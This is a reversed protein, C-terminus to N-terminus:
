RVFDELPLLQTGEPLELRMQAATFAPVAERSKVLVIARDGRVTVLNVRQVSNHEDLTLEMRWTDNFWRLPRGDSALVLTGGMGGECQFALDDGDRTVATYTSGFVTTLRGHLLADLGFLDLPLPVGIKLLPSNAGEHFYAKQEMPTYVLFHHDKQAIKAITAGIGAQVDLRLTRDGNGWLLATVRRTNGEQGFRLSLNDRFPAPAKAFNAQMGQWAASAASPDVPTAPRKGACGPLMLLLIMLILLGPLCFSASLVPVRVPLATCATQFARTSLLLRQTM